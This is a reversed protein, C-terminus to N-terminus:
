DLFLFAPVASSPRHCASSSAQSCGQDRALLFVSGRGSYHVYLVVTQVQGATIGPGTDQTFPRLSSYSSGFGCSTETQKVTRKEM